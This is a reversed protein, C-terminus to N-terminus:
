RYERLARMVAKLAETQSKAKGLTEACKKDKLVHHVWVSFDNRDEHVHYYYENSGITKLASRLDELTQLIPGNNVWFCHENNAVVLKKLRVAKKVTRKKVSTTKTTKKRVVKKARSTGSRTTKTKGAVKRNPAKTTARKKSTSKVVRKKNLTAKRAPKKTTKKKTPM